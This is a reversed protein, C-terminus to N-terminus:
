VLQLLLYTDPNLADASVAKSNYIFDKQTDGNKSTEFAFRLDDDKTIQMYGKPTYNGTTNYRSLYDYSIFLEAVTKGNDARVIARPASYPVYINPEYFDHSNGYSFTLTGDNKLNIKYDYVYPAGLKHEVTSVTFGITEVGSGFEYKLHLGKESRYVYATTDDINLTAKEGQYLEEDFIGDVKYDGSNDLAAYLNGDADMRVYSAPSESDCYVGGFRYNNWVVSGRENEGALRFAFGLIDDKKVTHTSTSLFEYPVFMEVIYSCGICDTSVQMSISSLDDVTDAWDKYKGRQVKLSRDLEIRFLLDGEGAYQGRVTYYDDLYDSGIKFSQDYTNIYFMIVDKKTLQKAYGVFALRLGKEDRYILADARDRDTYEELALTATKNGSWYAEDLVADVSSDTPEPMEDILEDQPVVNGNYLYAAYTDPYLPDCFGSSFTVSNWGDWDKAPDTGWETHAGIYETARWMGFTLYFRTRQSVQMDVSYYRFFSYPIYLEGYYGNDIDDNKNITTGDHLNVKVEPRYKKLPILENYSRGNGTMVQMYGSAQIWFHFDKTPVLTHATSGVHLCIEVRDGNNVNKDDACDFYVYLGNLGRAITIDASELSRLGGVKTTFASQSLYEENDKIGNVNGNPLYLRNDNKLSGDATFTAYKAPIEPDPFIGIGNWGDWSYDGERKLGLTFYFDNSQTTGIFEYPVFAEMVYGNDDKNGAEITTGDNLKIVSVPKLSYKLNDFNRDNWRNVADGGEAYEIRGDVYFRVKKTTTSSPYESEGLTDFYVEIYEDGSVQKDEQSDFIFYVGNEGKYSYFNVSELSRMGGFTGYVASSVYEEKGLDADLGELTKVRNKSLIEFKKEAKKGANNTASIEIKYVGSYELFLKGNEITEYTGLPSYVKILPKLGSEVSDNVTIEPMVFYEGVLNNEIYEGLAITPSPRTATNEVVTVVCTKKAKNGAKDMAEYVVKYEGAVEVKFKGNEVKVVSDDPAYVTVKVSVNKDFDDVAKCTRIEVDEGVTAQTYAGVYLVPPTVDKGKDSGCGCAVAFSSISIALLIFILCNIFKKSM